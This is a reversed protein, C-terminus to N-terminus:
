SDQMRTILYWNPFVEDLPHVYELSLKQWTELTILLYPDPLTHWYRLLTEPSTPIIRRDSYFNLAPNEEALDAYVLQGHPVRDQLTQALLQISNGSSIEGTWYPSTVLLMWSVYMGWFLIAIFQPNRQSILIAALSFTLAIGVLVLILSFQHSLDRLDLPFNLWLSLCVLSVLGSLILLAIRWWKPYPEESPRDFVEALALGGALALPPYLSMLYSVGSVPLITFIVLYLGVWVLILKAWGWILSKRALQLGSYAFIFWPLSLAVFKVGYLGWFGQFMGQSTEFPVLFIGEISSPGYSVWQCGYWTIAPVLGLIIGLWFYGSTLLRPTDWSLFLLIVLSLFLGMVGQTLLLCSLSLSVGVSWRLDRRSRLVCWMTLIEFCIVAGDLLALRGQRVVPFLTLFILAGFLAPMRRVFAERGLGYLLPISLATLIVGSLRTTEERVGGWIYTLSILFIGLPPNHHYSEGWLTPFLWEGSFLSHHAMEKAVQAVVSEQGNLLPFALNFSFLFLAALFLGTGILFEQWNNERHRQNQSQHWVFTLHNM